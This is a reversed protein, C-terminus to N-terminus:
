GQRGAWIKVDDDEGRAATGKPTEVAKDDWYEDAYVKRTDGGFWLKIEPLNDNVADFRLPAPLAGCWDVAANLDEGRRCTWLIIRAGELKARLLATIVEVNPAGIAPFREGRRTICGDFDVAIM